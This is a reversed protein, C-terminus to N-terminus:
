NGDELRGRKNNAYESHVRYHPEPESVWPKWRGDMKIEKKGRKGLDTDITKM